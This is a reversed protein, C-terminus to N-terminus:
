AHVPPVDARTRHVCAIGVAVGDPEVEGRWAGAVADTVAQIRSREADTWNGGSKWLRAFVRDM